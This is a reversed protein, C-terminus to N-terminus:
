AEAVIIPYDATGVAAMSDWFETGYSMILESAANELWDRDAKYAPIRRVTEIYGGQTVRVNPTRRSSGRLDNIKFAYMGPYPFCANPFLVRGVLATQHEDTQPPNNGDVFVNNIVILKDGLLSRQLTDVEASARPDDRRGLLRGVYRGLRFDPAFAKAAYLGKGRRGLSHLLCSERVFLWPVWASHVRRYIDVDGNSYEYKDFVFAM